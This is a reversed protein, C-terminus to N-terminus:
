RITSAVEDLPAWLDYSGRTVDDGVFVVDGHQTGSLPSQNLDIGWGAAERQLNELTGSVANGDTRVTVTGIIDFGRGEAFGFVPEVRFPNVREIGWGGADEGGQSGTPQIINPVWPIVVDPEQITIM